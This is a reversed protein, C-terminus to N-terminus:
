LHKLYIEEADIIPYPNGSWNNYNSIGKFTGIVTLRDNRLLNFTQGEKIIGKLPIFKINDNRMCLIHKSFEVVEYVIINNDSTFKRYFNCKIMVRKGIYKNPNRVLSRYDVKITDDKRRQEEYEKKRQEEQQKYEEYTPLETKKDAGMFWMFLILSSFILIFIALNITNNISM